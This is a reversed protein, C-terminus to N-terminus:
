SPCLEAEVLEFIVHGVAMHGQQIQATSSSPICIVHDAHMQAPSGPKGLFAITVMQRKRAAQLASVVNQSRGSTSMGLLVDGRNGLGDVARAYVDSYAYDNGIATLAATNDSLSIAPLSRRELQFRGILEAALHQADASSGGNGCLLIKGGQRLSGVIAEVAGEFQAALEADGAVAQLVEVSETLRARLLDGRSM